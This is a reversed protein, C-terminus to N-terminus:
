EEEVAFFHLDVNMWGGQLPTQAERDYGEGWIRVTIEESVYFGQSNPEGGISVIFNPYTTMNVTPTYETPIDDLDDSLIYNTLQRRVTKKEESPDVTRYYFTSM